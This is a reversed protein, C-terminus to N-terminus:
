AAGLEGGDRGCRGRLGSAPLRRTGDRRRAGLRRRGRVVAGLRPADAIGASELWGDVGEGVAGLAAKQVANVSAYRAEAARLVGLREDVLRALKVDQERLKRIKEAVDQLARDFEDRAERKRQEEGVLQELSARLKEPESIEDSDELKKRRDGM